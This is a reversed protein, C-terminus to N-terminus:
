GDHTLRAVMLEAWFECLIDASVDETTEAATAYVSVAAALTMSGARVHDGLTFVLQELVEERGELRGEEWDSYSEGNEDVYLSM